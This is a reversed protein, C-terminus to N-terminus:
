ATFDAIQAEDFGLSRLIEVNHEGREPAHRYIQRRFDSMQLPTVAIRMPGESPHDSEILFDRSKVHPHELAEDLTLVPELCCECNQCFESWEAFTKSAFLAELEPRLGFDFRRHTWEPKRVAHCFANWFKDEIAALAVWRGDSTRYLDYFPLAGSLLDAGADPPRGTALMTAYAAVLYSVCGDFMSVDVHRGKGEERAGIVAALIGIAAQKAGAMLDAIQLNPVCLMGARGIQSSLGSLACYNLDHGARMALPGTQGYGTISCYVLRPNVAALDEYGLGRAAMVGPRFSEVVADATQALKLIAARGREFNLCLSRKNRNVLTYLFSFRNKLPPTRRLYDGAGADEIKIVDAGLDALEATCFPGPLLRTFDLIRLSSLPLKASM